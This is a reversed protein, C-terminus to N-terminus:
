IIPKLFFDPYYRYLSGTMQSCQKHDKWREEGFSYNTKQKQCIVLFQFPFSPDATKQLVGVDTLVRKRHMVGEANM